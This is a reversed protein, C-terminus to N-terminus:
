RCAPTALVLRKATSIASETGHQDGVAIVWSGVTKSTSELTQCDWLLGQLQQFYQFPSNQFPQARGNGSDSRVHARRAPISQHFDAFLSTGSTAYVPPCMPSVILHKKSSRCRWGTCGRGELKNCNGKAMGSERRYCPNLDRRKIFTIFVPHRFPDMEPM